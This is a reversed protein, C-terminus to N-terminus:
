GGYLKRYGEDVKRIFDADKRAPHWYREDRQMEALEEATIGTAANDGPAPVDRALEMIKEIMEVGSATEMLRAIDDSADDGFTKKAFLTAAQLRDAANEGLKKTEAAVREDEAKPDGLVAKRYVEIGKEFQEQSYGNNHAEEAWWSLLESDIADSEEIGEPMQYDGPKEPRDKFREAILEEKLANRIEDDKKGLKSELEGYSKALDEATKFKEPLWEPRDGAPPDAPPDAPLDASTDAPPTDQVDEPMLTEAM